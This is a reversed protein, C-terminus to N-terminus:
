PRGDGHLHGIGRLYALDADAFDELSHNRHRGSTPQPKVLPVLSEAAAPPLGLFQVLHAFGAAPDACLADYREMTERVPLRQGGEAVVGTLDLSVVQTLIFNDVENFPSVRLSLDGRWDLYDLINAM